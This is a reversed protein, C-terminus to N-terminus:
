ARDTLANNADKDKKNNMKITYKVNFISRLSTEMHDHIHRLLTTFTMSISFSDIEVVTVVHKRGYPFWAKIGRHKANPKNGKLFVCHLKFNRALAFRFITRPGAGGRSPEITM